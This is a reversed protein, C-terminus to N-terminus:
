GYLIGSRWYIPANITNSSALITTPKTFAVRLLATSSATAHSFVHNNTVVDYNSGGDKSIAYGVTGVGNTEASLFSSQKVGNLSQNNSYLYKTGASGDNYGVSYVFLKANADTNVTASAGFRLYVTSATLASCAITSSTVTRNFYPTTSSSTVESVYAKKAVKDYSIVVERYIDGANTSSWVNVNNTGDFLSVTNISASGNTPTKSRLSVFLEANGTFSGINFGSSGNSTVTCTQSGLGSYDAELYLYGGGTTIIATTAHAADGGGKASLWRTSSTLTSAVLFDDLLEGGYVCYTGFVADSSTQNYMTGGHISSSYLNLFNTSTSSLLNSDLCLQAIPNGLVNIVGNFYGDDLQDGNNVTGFSDITAMIFVGIIV